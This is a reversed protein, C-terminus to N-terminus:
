LPGFRFPRQQAAKPCDKSIPQPDAYFINKLSLIKELRYKKRIELFITERQTLTDLGFSDMIAVLEIGKSVVDPCRKPHSYWILFKDLKRTIEQDEILKWCMMKNALNFAEALQYLNDPQGFNEYKEEIISKWRLLDKSLDFNYIKYLISEVLPDELMSGLIPSLPPTPNKREYIILENNEEAFVAHAMEHAVVHADDVKVPFSTLCIKHCKGNQDFAHAAAAVHRKSLDPVFCWKIRGARPREKDYFKNFEDSSQRLNDVVESEDIEGSQRV